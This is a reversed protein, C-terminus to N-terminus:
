LEEWEGDSNEEFYRTYRPLTGFTYDNDHSVIVLTDDDFDDLINKLEAVTLPKKIQDIGYGERRVDFIIANKTNEM